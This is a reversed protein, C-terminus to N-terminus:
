MLLLQLTKLILWLSAKNQAHLSVNYKHNILESVILLFCQIIAYM